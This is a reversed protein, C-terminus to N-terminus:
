KKVIGRRIRSLQTPTIGLYSAIHYQPILQELNPFQTKFLHYRKDANLLVIELEREEKQIFAQQIIQNPKGSILSSYGGIFSPAQYFHKNYEKDENYRYFAKMTGTELVGVKKAIIGNKIFIENKQLKKFTFITELDTITNNSIPSISNVYEIVKNM